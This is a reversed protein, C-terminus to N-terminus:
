ASSGVAIAPSNMRKYFEAGQNELFEEYTGKFDIIGNPTVEIIRNCLSSIFERDHSVLIVAGEYIQLAYNLAEISELDLHNTPEDLAILNSEAMILKGIILRSKEGGSLVSTPKTAMDGSFLMKGLVGRVEQVDTTPASANQLLWQILTEADQKIGDRHDQPFYSAEVSEGWKVEGSQPAEIQMLTKLLTSKGIGNTGIIGVKDGKVISLSVDKFITRDYTRSINKAEIVDKGLSKKLRFRIYPSVRSTAKLEVMTAKIKEIQKQRSTAQKSKSANASFRNVFDQLEGIKEKQRKADTEMQDKLLTSAEMYDDYNGPYIRITNFDLDAVHTSVANIFYRDHSIVIVTGDYNILLEELWHITKIDLNNTPEDLLLIDPKLFLVQALLIRLKFGGTLESMKRNHFGTPIGLGDLLEAAKSEAEYGDMDAFKEELESVLIGEEETMEDKAYLEDRKKLIEYFEPNGMLVANMVTENEYQFQDQKLYGLKKDKEIIVSGATQPQIGALIKMFTSKGSGNAGILGYRSSEKFKVSVNEFLPKKGFSCTLGSVAIM